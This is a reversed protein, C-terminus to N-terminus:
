QFEILLFLGKQIIITGKVRIKKIIILVRNPKANLFHNKLFFLKKHKKKVEIKKHKWIM